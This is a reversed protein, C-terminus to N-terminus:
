GAIQDVIAAVSFQEAVAAGTASLPWEAGSCRQLPVITHLKFGQKNTKGKYHIQNSKVIYSKLKIVKRMFMHNNIIRVCITNTSNNQEIGTALWSSVKKTTTNQSHQTFHKVLKLFIYPIQNIVWVIFGIAEQNKSTITTKKM